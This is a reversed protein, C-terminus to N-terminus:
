EKIRLKEHLEELPFNRDIITHNKDLLYIVPTTILNFYEIFDYNPDNMYYNVNVWSFGHNKCFNDWKELDDTIAVAFVELNYHSAFENYFENLKPTEVICEDCDADWFWLIIYDKDIDSSAHKANHIDYSVLVPVTEGPLLRRKRDASRQYYRYLDESISGINKNACHNDYLYVFVQDYIRSNSQSEFLKLLDAVYYEYAEKDKIQSLFKEAYHIITQQSDQPLIDMFYGKIDTYIPCRMLRPDEFSYIDLYHEKLIQYLQSEYTSDVEDQKDLEDWTPLMPNFNYAYKLYQGLFSSPMSEYYMKTIKTTNVFDQGCAKTQKQFEIFQINEESNDIVATTCYKIDWEGGTITFRRDKDIILDMYENGQRDIVTYIGSPMERKKNKFIASKHGKVKASDFLYAERGYYSQLYLYSENINSASIKIEYGQIDTNQAESVPLATLLAFFCLIWLRFTKM